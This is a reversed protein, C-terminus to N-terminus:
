STTRTGALRNYQSTKIDSTPGLVADVQVGLQMPLEVALLGGSAALVAAVEIGVPVEAVVLSQGSCPLTLLLARM